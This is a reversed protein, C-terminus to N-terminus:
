RVVRVNRIAKGTRGASTCAATITWTGLGLSSVKLSSTVRGDAPTGDLGSGLRKTITSRYKRASFRCSAGPATFVQVRTAARLRVAANANPALFRVRPARTALTLQMASADTEGVRAFRGSRAVSTPLAITESQTFTGSGAKGTWDGTGGLVTVNFTGGWTATTNTPTVLALTMTGTLEGSLGSGDAMAIVWTCRQSGTGSFSEYAISSGTLDSTIVMPLSMRLGCTLDITGSNSGDVTQVTGSFRAAPQNIEETIECRLGTPPFGGLMTCGAPPTMGTPQEIEPSVAPGGSVNVVLQDTPVAPANVPLVLLTAATAVISLLLRIVASRTM